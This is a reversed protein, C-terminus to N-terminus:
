KVSQLTKIINIAKNEKLNIINETNLIIDDREKKEIIKIAPREMDEKNNYLIIAQKENNLLVIDGPFFKPISKKFVNVVESDFLINSNSNIYNWAEEHMYAGRFPRNNILADYVDAVAVIKSYLNIDDGKLKKPYGSGDIREHHQYAINASKASIGYIKRITDFSLYTHQQMEEKEIDDLPRKQEIFKYILMKLDYLLAGVGMDILEEDNLKLKYGLLLSICLVNVAHFFYYNELNRYDLFDYFLNTDSKLCKIMENIFYKFVHGYIIKTGTANNYSLIKKIEDINYNKLIANNEGESEYFCKLIKLLEARINMEYIYNVKIEDNEIYIFPINYLKLKEINFTKVPTGRKLLIKGSIDFVDIANIDGEKIEDILKRQM